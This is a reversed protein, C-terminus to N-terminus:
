SHSQKDKLRKEIRSVVEDHEILDGKAAQSLGKEVEQIFWTDHDLLRDVADQVVQAADQGTRAAVQRLLAEKEPTLHIEM